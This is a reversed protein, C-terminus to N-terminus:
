AFRRRVIFESSSYGRVRILTGTHAAEVCQGGGICMVVHGPEPFMLDGPIEQGNKVATGAVIQMESIRPISVGVSKYGAYMLGSCDYGNPGIGGWVYPKGVQAVCYGVAGHAAASGGDLSLTTLTDGQTTTTDGSGSSSGGLSFGFSQQPGPLPRNGSVVDRVTALVGKNTFGSWALVLGVGGIAYITGTKAM